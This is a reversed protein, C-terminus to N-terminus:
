MLNEFSLMYSFFLLDPRIYYVPYDKAELQVVVVAHLISDPFLLILSQQDHSSSSRCEMSSQAIQSALPVHAQVVALPDRERVFVSATRVYPVFKINSM